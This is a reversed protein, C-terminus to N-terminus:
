RTQRIAVITDGARHPRADEASLIAALANVRANQAAAGPAVACLALLLAATGRTM